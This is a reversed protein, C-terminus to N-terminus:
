AYSEKAYYLMIETNSLIVGDIIDVKNELYDRKILGLVHKSLMSASSSVPLQSVWHDLNYEESSISIQFPNNIESLLTDFNNSKAIVKSFPAFVLVSLSLFQRRNIRM